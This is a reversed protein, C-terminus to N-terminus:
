SAEPKRCEIRMDRYKKHYVPEKKRIKIFGAAQLETGLEEASWCWRHVMIPDQYKPDGFLGWVGARLDPNNLINHAVKHLDPVEIILAGGPKLIRFWEALAAPAEWRYFHELVHVTLAEDVIGDRIMPLSRVDARIDPEGQLDVSLFGDIARRGAGLNLKLPSIRSLDM